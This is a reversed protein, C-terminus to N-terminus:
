TKKKWKKLMETTVRTKKYRNEEYYGVEEEATKVLGKKNEEM